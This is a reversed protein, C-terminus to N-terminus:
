TYWISPLSNVSGNSGTKLDATRKIEQTEKKTSM